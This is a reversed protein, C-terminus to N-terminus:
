SLFLHLPLSFGVISVSQKLTDTVYSRCICLVVPIGAFIFLAAVFVAILVSPIGAPAKSSAHASTQSM